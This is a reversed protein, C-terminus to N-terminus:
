FFKDVGTVKPFRNMYTSTTAKPLYAYNSLTENFSNSFLINFIDPFIFYQLFM